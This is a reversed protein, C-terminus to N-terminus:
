NFVICVEEKERQHKICNCKRTVAWWYEKVLPVSILPKYKRKQLDNSTEEKRECYLGDGTFSFKIHKRRNTMDDSLNDFNSFEDYIVAKRRKRDTYRKRSSDRRMPVRCVKAM